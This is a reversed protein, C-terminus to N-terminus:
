GHFPALTGVEPPSGAVAAHTDMTNNLLDKKSTMSTIHMAPRWAPQRPADSLQQLRGGHRLHVLNGTGGPSPALTSRSRLEPYVSIHLKHSHSVVKVAKASAGSHGDGAVDGAEEQDKNAAAREAGTGQALDEEVAVEPGARRPAPLSGKRRGVARRTAPEENTTKPFRLVGTQSNVLM